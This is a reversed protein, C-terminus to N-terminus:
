AAEQAMAGDAISRVFDLKSYLDQQFGIRLQGLSHGVFRSFHEFDAAVDRVQGFTRTRCYEVECQSFAHREDLTRCIDMYIGFINGTDLSEFQADFRKRRYSPLRRIRETTLTAAHQAIGDLGLTKEVWLSERRVESNHIFWKRKVTMLGDAQPIYAIYGSEENAGLVEFIHQEYDWVQIERDLEPVFDALQGAAIQGHLAHLLAWTDPIGTFTFKREMELDPRWKTYWCEDGLAHRLEDLRQAHGPMRGQLQTWRMPGQQTPEDRYHVFMSGPEGHQVLHFFATHGDDHDVALTAPMWRGGVEEGTLQDLWRFFDRSTQRQEGNFLRFDFAPADLLPVPGGDRCWALPRLGPGRLYLGNRGLRLGDGACALVVTTAANGDQGARGPCTLRLHVTPLSSPNM